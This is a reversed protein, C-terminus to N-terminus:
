FPLLAEIEEVTTAQPLKTFVKKLYAYPEKQNAKATEVLSYLNAGANAGAVTDSFLWNKRGIVFPRIANETLNNDINIRGDTTYVNLKEWQSNLYYLAKGLASQRPVRSLNKELWEHLADLVPVAKDQRLQKRQEDTLKKGQREIAYLLQIRQLAQKALPTRAKGKTKGQVTLADKFKRRAHAWCGVSILGNASCVKNYGAFGDTQLYGTYGALLRIPVEQSRGRDYDYVILPHRPPGGRQVWMYSQSQPSKGAEKLVQLRTEDMCVIPYDLIQDHMLNILPQVLQGAKIMWNALTNRPIEIGIRKLPQQQRYLPLGDVYKSTVISALTGPSAQSKPIPQEPLPATKIQDKCVLCHYTKRIHRIVQVTAPIIDLQESVKESMVQLPKQCVDCQCDTASLEHIVEIRPLEAPLPKRGTRKRSHAPVQIDTQTDTSTDVDTDASDTITEAENFLLALQDPSYRESSTGFRQQSSLKLADVLQKIFQAQQEIKESLTQQQLQHRRQQELVYEKLAPVDDPLPKAAMQM